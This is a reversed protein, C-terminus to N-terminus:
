FSKAEHRPVTDHNIFPFVRPHILAECHTESFGRLARASPYYRAIGDIATYIFEDFNFHSASVAVSATPSVAHELEGNYWEFILGIPNTSILNVRPTVGARTEQVSQASAPSALALLFLAGIFRGFRM